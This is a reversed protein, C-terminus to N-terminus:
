PIVRRSNAIAAPAALRARPKPTRARAPSAFVTRKIIRVIQANEVRHPRGGIDRAIVGVHHEVRQEGEVELELRLRLHNAIM